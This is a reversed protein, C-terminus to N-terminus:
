HIVTDSIKDITEKGRLHSASPKTDENRVSLSNKNKRVLRKNENMGELQDTEFRTERSNKREQDDVNPWGRKKLEGRQMEKPKVKTKIWKKKREANSGSNYTSRGM